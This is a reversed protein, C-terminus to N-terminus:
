PKGVTAFNTDVSPVVEAAVGHPVRRMPWSLRRGKSELVVNQCTPMFVLRAVVRDHIGRRAQYTVRDADRCVFAYVVVGVLLAEQIVIEGFADRRHDVGVVWM